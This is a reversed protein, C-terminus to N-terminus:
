RFIGVILLLISGVINPLYALVDNMMNTIPSAVGTLGLKGFFGPMWLIFTIFYFLKEIFSKIQERKDKEIKSKELMKDFKENKTLKSVLTKVITATLFALVLIILAAVVDPVSNLFKNWLYSVNEM